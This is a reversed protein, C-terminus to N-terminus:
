KVLKEYGIQIKTQEYNDIEQERKQLSDLVYAIEQEEQTLTENSMIKPIIVQAQLAMVESVKEKILRHMRSTLYEPRNGLGYFLQLVNIPKMSVTVEEELDVLSNKLLSRLYEIIYYNEENIAGFLYETIYCVYKKKLTFNLM